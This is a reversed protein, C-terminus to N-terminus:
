TQNKGRMKQRLRDSYKELIRREAPTLSQDGEANLKALIRDSENALKHDPITPEPDHIKLRSQARWVRVKRRLTLLWDLDPWFNTIRWRFRFYAAAFVIGVLHVDFAIGAAGEHGPMRVAFLNSLIVFLGLLWAPVPIVFYLLLKQHPFHFVFLMFVATVAGSAGILSAHHQPFFLKEKVAWAVSCLVLTFLYFRLFEKRGYIPEIHRGFMGLMLMNGVIHWMTHTDHAFGYSLLQWWHWPPWLSEPRAALKDFLWHKATEDRDQVPQTTEREGQVLKTTEREGHVPKKTEVLLMNAVYLVVNIIILNRVVPSLNFM